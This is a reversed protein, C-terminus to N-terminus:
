GPCPVHHSLIEGSLDLVVEGKTAPTHRPDGSCSRLTWVLQAAPSRPAKRAQAPRALTPKALPNLATAHM